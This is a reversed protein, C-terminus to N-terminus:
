VKGNISLFYTRSYRAGRAAGASKEQDGLARLIDFMEGDLKKM